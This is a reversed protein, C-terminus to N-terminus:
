DRGGTMTDGMSTFTGTSPDYLETDNPFPRTVLVKGNTLLTATPCVGSDNDPTFKAYTGAATFTATAPDYIQVGYPPPGAVGGAVLVKGNDLLTATACPTAAVMDGTPTFTRTSPDYLEASALGSDIVFFKKVAGGAILVMGNPLLIAAHQYRATTMDGTRTFLGTDPDYLEASALAPPGSDGQARASWGGAILVKGEHLLTATHGSRPTTMEGTSTFAGPTQAVATSTFSALGWFLPSIFLVAKFHPRITKGAPRM